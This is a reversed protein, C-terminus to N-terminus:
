CPSRAVFVSELPPRGSNPPMSVCVCLSFSLYLSLDDLSICFLSYLSSICPFSSSPAPERVAGRGGPHPTPTTRPTIYNAHPTTNHYQTTHKRTHTNPLPPTPNALTHTQPLPPPRVARAGGLESM